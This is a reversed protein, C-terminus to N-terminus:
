VMAIDMYLAPVGFISERAVTLHVSTVMVIMGYWVGWAGLLAVFLLNLSSKCILMCKPIDVAGM